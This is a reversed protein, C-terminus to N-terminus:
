STPSTKPLRKACVNEAMAEELSFTKKCGTSGQTHCRIEVKKGKGLTSGIHAKSILVTAGTSDKKWM